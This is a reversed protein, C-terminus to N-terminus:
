IWIGYHAAVHTFPPSCYLTRSSEIKFKLKVNQFRLERTEVWVGVGGSGGLLSQGFM